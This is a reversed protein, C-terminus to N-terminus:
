QLHVQEVEHVQPIRPVAGSFQRAELNTVGASGVDLSVATSPAGLISQAWVIM